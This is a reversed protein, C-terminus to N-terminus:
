RPAPTDPADPAKAAPLPRLSLLFEEVDLHEIARDGNERREKLSATIIREDNENLVGGNTVFVKLGEIGVCKAIITAETQGDETVAQANFTGGNAVFIKLARAEDSFLASRESAAVVMAETWGDETVAQPNFTGGNAVFIKLGADHTLTAIIMAQTLDGKYVAQPDFTGGNAIFTELGEFFHETVLKYFNPKGPNALATFFARLRAALTNAM